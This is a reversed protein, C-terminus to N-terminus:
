CSLGARHQVAALPLHGLVKGNKKSGKLITLNGELKEPVDNKKRMEEVVYQCFEVSSLTEKPPKDGEPYGKLSFLKKTGETTKFYGRLKYTPDPPTFSPDPLKTPVPPPEPDWMNKADQLAEMGIMFKGRFDPPLVTVIEQKVGDVVLVHWLDERPSYFLWHVKNSKDERGLPVYKEDLVIKHVEEFLLSSRSELREQAHVTWALNM